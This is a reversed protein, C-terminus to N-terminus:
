RLQFALSCTTSRVENKELKAILDKELKRRDGDGKGALDEYNLMEIDSDSEIDDKGGSLGRKGKARKARPGSGKGRRKKRKKGKGESDVNSDKVTPSTAALRESEEPTTRRPTASRREVSVGGTVSDTQPLRDHETRIREINLRAAPPLVWNEPYPECPHADYLSM